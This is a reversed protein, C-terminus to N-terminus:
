KKEESMETFKPKAAPAFSSKQVSAPVPLEATPARVGWGPNLARKGILRYGAMLFAGATGAGSCSGARGWLGSDPSLLFFICNKRRTENTGM